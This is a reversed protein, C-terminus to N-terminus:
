TTKTTPPRPPESSKFHHKDPRTARPTKTSPSPTSTSAGAPAEHEITPTKAISSRRPTHSISLIQTTSSTIPIAAERFSRRFISHNPSSSQGYKAKNLGSLDKCNNNTDKCVITVPHLNERHTSGPYQLPNFPVQFHGSLAPAHKARLPSTWQIWKVRQLRLVWKIM